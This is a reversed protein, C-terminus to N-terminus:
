GIKSTKAKQTLRSKDGAGTTKKGKVIDKGWGSITAQALDSAEGLADGFVASAGVVAKTMQSNVKSVSEEISRGGVSEISGLTRSAAQDLDVILRSLRRDTENVRQVAASINAEAAVNDLSEAVAEDLDDIVVGLGEAFIALATLPKEVAIDELELLTSRLLKAEKQQELGAAWELPAELLTSGIGRTTTQKADDNTCGEEENDSAAWLAGHVDSFHQKLGEGSSFSELCEPCVFGQLRGAQLINVNGVEQAASKFTAPKDVKESAEKSPTDEPKEDTRGKRVFSRRMRNSFRSRLSPKKKKTGVTVVSAATGEAAEEAQLADITEAARPLVGPSPKANQGRASIKVPLGGLFFLFRPSDFELEVGIWGGTTADKRIVLDIDVVSEDFFRTRVPTETQTSQADAKNSSSQRSTAILDIVLRETSVQKRVVKQNQMQSPPDAPIDQWCEQLGVERGTEDCSVSLFNNAQILFGSNNNHAGPCTIRLVDIQLAMGDSIQASIGFQDVGEGYWEKLLRQELDSDLRPPNGGQCLEIECLEILMKVESFKLGVVECDMRVNVLKATKWMKEAEWFPSM